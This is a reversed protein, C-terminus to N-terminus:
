QRNVGSVSSQSQSRRSLSLVSERTLRATISSRQGNDLKFEGNNMGFFESATIRARMLGNLTHAKSELLYHGMEHALARGMARGLLTQKELLPMSALAGVVGPSEVMLQQANTYSVYVTPEPRWGDFTIWGLALGGGLGPRVDRGIVVQLTAASAERPALQWAFTFGSHRWIADTEALVSKVLSPHIDPSASVNVTLAIALATATLM